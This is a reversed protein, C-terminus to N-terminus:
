GENQSKCVIIHKPTMNIPTQSIIIHSLAM